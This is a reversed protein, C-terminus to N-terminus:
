TTGCRHKAVAFFAAGLGGTLMGFCGAGFGKWGTFLAVSGGRGVAFGKASGRAPDRDVGFLALHVDKSTRRVKSVLLM